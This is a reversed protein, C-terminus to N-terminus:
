GGGRRQSVSNTNLGWLTLGPRGWALCPQNRWTGLARCGLHPGRQSLCNLFCFVGCLSLLLPLPFFAHAFGSCIGLDSSSSVDGRLEPSCLLCGVCTVSCSSIQLRSLGRCGFANKSLIHPLIKVQLRM